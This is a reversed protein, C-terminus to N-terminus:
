TTANKVQLVLNDFRQALALPEFMWKKEAPDFLTYPITFAESATQDIIFLEARDRVGSMTEALYQLGDVAFDVPFLFEAYYNRGIAESWLFPLKNAAQRLSILEYESLSRVLLQIAFYRHKRHLAKDINYDYQSGM